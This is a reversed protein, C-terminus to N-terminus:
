TAKADSLKKELRKLRYLLSEKWEMRDLLGKDELAGIGMQTWVYAAALDRARHEYYKALEEIAQIVGANAAIEWLKIATEWEELRKFIMSARQLTQLYIEEPLEDSLSQLYIAAAERLRGIREFVSGIGVLDLASTESRGLPNSLLDSIHNFLGVMALIDKANHYFVNKLLRADGTNLYDRYLQPIVWGPIDESTRSAGLIQGEINILTRSPLRDKWLRRSLHMLDVHMNDTLPSSLGNFTYRSNLVPADFSKGNFTVLARCGTIFESFAALQAPEEEPERMFFQALRFSEGEFKGVGILFAYIGTGGHLGTTETDIFALEEPACSSFDVEGAWEAMIEPTRSIQLPVYGYYESSSIREESLFTEGYLNSIVGGPVVNEISTSHKVLPPLLEDAGIKVGLAKLRDSLSPMEFKHYKLIPM